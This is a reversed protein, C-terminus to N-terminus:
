KLSPPAEHIHHIVITDAKFEVRDYDRGQSQVYCGCETNAHHNLAIAEETGKEARRAQLLKEEARGAAAETGPGKKTEEARRAAEADAAAEDVAARAQQLQKQEEPSLKEVRPSAPPPAPALPPPSQLLAILLPLASLVM